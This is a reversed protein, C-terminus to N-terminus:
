EGESVLTMDVSPSISDVSRMDASADIFTRVVERDLQGPSCRILEAIADEYSLGRRYPRDSTMADFSDAVALIRAAASLGDGDLGFPYGTADLREHHQEVAKALRRLPPIRQVMQAGTTPHNKVAIWEDDTLQGTKRLLVGPLALKGVDHLLAAHELDYLARSDLGSAEGIIVAYKAVRESHGRTYPDKAELAGVLSRITDTYASKLASFRQYFQRAVLLPFVFLVFAWPSAALVQAIIYGIVGFAVQGVPLLGVSDLVDALPM